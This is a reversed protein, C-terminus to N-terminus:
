LTVRQHASYLWKAIMLRAAAITKFHTKIRFINADSVAAKIVGRCLFLKKLLRQTEKQIRTGDPNSSKSLQVDLCVAGDIEVLKIRLKEMKGDFVEPHM